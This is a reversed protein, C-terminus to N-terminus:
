SAVAFAAGLCGLAVLLVLGYFVRSRTIGEDFAADMGLPVLLITCSFAAWLLVASAASM